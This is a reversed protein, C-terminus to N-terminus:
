IIIILKLNQKKAPVTFEKNGAKKYTRILITEINTIVGLYQFYEIIQYFNPIISKYKQLNIIMSDSITDDNIIDLIIKWQEFFYPETRQILLCGGIRNM